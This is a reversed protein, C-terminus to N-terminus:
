SLKKRQKCRTLEGGPQERMLRDGYFERTIGTKRTWNTLMVWDGIKFDGSSQAAKKEELGEYAPHRAVEEAKVAPKNASKAPDFIWKGDAGVTVGAPLGTPRTARRKEVVTKTGPKPGKNAGLEGPIPDIKDFTSMIRLM